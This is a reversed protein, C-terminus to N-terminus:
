VVPEPNIFLVWAFGLTVLFEVAFAPWANLKLALAGYLSLASTLALSVFACIMLAHRAETNPADRALWGAVALMLLFAGYRRGVYNLNDGPAIRWFKGFAAPAILWGLGFILWLVATVTLVFESNM